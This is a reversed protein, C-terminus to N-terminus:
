SRDQSARARGNPSRRSFTVLIALFLSPALVLGLVVGDTAPVHIYPGGLKIAVSIATSFLFIKFIFGLTSQWFSGSTKEPTAAM